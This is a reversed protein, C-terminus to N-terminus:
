SHCLDDLENESDCGLYSSSEESESGLLCGAVESDHLGAPQKRSAFAM